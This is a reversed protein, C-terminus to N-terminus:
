TLTLKEGVAPSAVSVPLLRVTAATAQGYSVGQGGYILLMVAFISVIIKRNIVLMKMIFEKRNIQRIFERLVDSDM